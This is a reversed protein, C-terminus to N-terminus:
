KNKFQGIVGVVKDYGIMSCLWSLVVMAIICIISQSTFATGTWVFYGVSIGVSLVASVMGALTNASYTKNHESLIKKIAETVLSTFTSIIMLGLLFTEFAIM